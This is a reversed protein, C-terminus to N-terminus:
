AAMEELKKAKAIAEEVVYSLSRKDECAKKDLWAKLDTSVRIKMQPKDKANM